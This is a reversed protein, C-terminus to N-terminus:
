SQPVFPAPGTVSDVHCTVSTERTFAFSDFPATEGAAVDNVKISDTDIVSDDHQYSVNVIYDHAVTDDNTIEGSLEVQGGGAECAIVRTANPGPDVFDTIESWLHRSLNFGVVAAGLAAVALLLGTIAYGRGSGQQHAIRRLAVIGFVIAAVAALAGLVFVFPIWATALAGLGVVFSSIAFGKRTAPDTAAVAPWVGPAAAFGVPANGGGAPDIYRQGHLSVDATWREGNHYRFEFRGTPDPHWGPQAANPEV